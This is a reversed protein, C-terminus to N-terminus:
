LAAATAPAPFEVGEYVDALAPRVGVDDLAIAADPGEHQDTQVLRGGKGRRFVVAKAADQWFILYTSISPVSDYDIFKM